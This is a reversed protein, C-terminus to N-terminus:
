FLGGPQHHLPYGRNEFLSVFGVSVIPCAICALLTMVRSQNNTYHLTVCRLLLNLVAHGWGEAVYIAEGGSNACM